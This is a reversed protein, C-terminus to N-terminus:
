LKIIEITIIISLRNHLNLVDRACYIKDIFVIIIMIVIIIIIIIINHLHTLVPTSHKLACVMLWHSCSNNIYLLVLTLDEFWLAHLLM